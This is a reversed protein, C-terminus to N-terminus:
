SNGTARAAMAKKVERVRKREAKAALLEQAAPGGQAIIQRNRAKIAKGKEIAALKRALIASKLGSIEHEVDFPTGIYHHNGRKIRRPVKVVFKTQDKKEALRLRGAVKVYSIQSLQPLPLALAQICELTNM